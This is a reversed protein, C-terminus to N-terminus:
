PRLYPVQLSVFVMDTKWPPWKLAPVNTGFNVHVTGYILASPRMEVCVCVCWFFFSLFFSFSCFSFPFIFLVGKRSSMLDAFHVNQFPGLVDPM